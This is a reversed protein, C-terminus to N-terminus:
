RRERCDAAQVTQGAMIGELARPDNIRGLTSAPSRYRTAIGSATDGARATYSFGRCGHASATVPTVLLSLLAIIISARAINSRRNTTM